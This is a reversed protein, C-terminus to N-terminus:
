AQHAVQLSTLKILVMAMSCMSGAQWVQSVQDQWGPPKIRELLLMLAVMVM